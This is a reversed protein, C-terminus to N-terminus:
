EIGVEDLLNLNYLKIINMLKIPYQPDTAYGARRIAWAALTSDYMVVRYPEYRSLELLIRKHDAWSEDINNYARFNADVRFSTGNYVEWTNSTVSGNTASGKIGFLNYSFKGSYKDVPLRQGWGTELIAQATQLAASMGTKEFSGIALDSAFELFQDKAIIARSGHLEGLYVSFTIKESMLTQGEYVAEAHVTMDGSIQPNYTIKDDLNGTGLIQTSGTKTNTLVYSVAEIDVNSSAYVKVDDTLVQKPGLGHINLKARGDITVRVPASTRAIGKTDKVRVYLDKEGSYSENPFWSYSGYPITALITEEGTVVDRIAYTTENVDYNRSAILTLSRSVTSGSSVGSLSLYRDVYFTTEQSSSVYAVDNGDYAIVKISYLGNEEYSPTWSYTGEPDREDITTVKGTELNTLEYDVHHALFNMTQGLTITGAVTPTVGTVTVEPKVDIVVPLADGGIFNRDDDYLAFVLIKRGQDEVKPLYNIQESLTSTQSVVFGKASDEELLVLKMEAAHQLSEPIDVQIAMEGTITAGAELSTIKVDFISEVATKITSDVVVTRNIGDWKVDIGFANSVLRIPVYTRDNIITPAVDSLTYTEGQNYQIVKSDIWLLMEQDDKIVRVTRTDHDWLVEAGIEESVFRIPVLMRNNKIIPSSLQTINQGDVILQIESDVEAEAYSISSMLLLFIMMMIIHKKM